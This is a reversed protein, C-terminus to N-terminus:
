TRFGDSEGAHAAHKRSDYSPVLVPGGARVRRRPAPTATPRLPQRPIDARHLDWNTHTDGAEEQLREYRSRHEPTATLLVAGVALVAMAILLLAAGAYPAADLLIAWLETILNM